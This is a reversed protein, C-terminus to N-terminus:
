LRGGARTGPNFVVAVPPHGERETSPYLTRWVPVERGQHDKTTLRFFRRYRDFKAALVEASETCNDVELLLVPVGAEPAHLVADTQVTSRSRGGAPLHHVVETSWSAM